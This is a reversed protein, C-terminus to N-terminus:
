EMLLTAAVSAGVVAVLSRLLCFASGSATTRDICCCWFM